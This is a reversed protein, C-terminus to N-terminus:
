PEVSVAEAFPLTALAIGYSDEIEIHCSLCLRGRIVEDAMLSRAAEVAVRFAEEFSPLERGEEDKTTEGCEHLHFYFRHM